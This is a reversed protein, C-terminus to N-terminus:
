FAEYYIYIYIYTNIYIHLTQSIGLIIKPQDEIHAIEQTSQAKMVNPKYNNRLEQM